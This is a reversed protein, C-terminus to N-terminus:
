PIVRKGSCGCCEMDCTSIRFLAITRAPGQCKLPRAPDFISRHDHRASLFMVALAQRAECIGGGPSSGPDCPRHGIIKALEVKASASSRKASRECVASLHDVNGQVNTGDELESGCVVLVLLGSAATGPEKGEEEM